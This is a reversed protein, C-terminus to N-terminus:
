QLLGKIHCLNSKGPKSLIVPFLEDEVILQRELISCHLSEPFPVVLKFLITLDNGSLCYFVTDIITNSTTDPFIALNDPSQYQRYIFLRLMVMQLQQKDCRLCVALADARSGPLFSFAEIRTRLDPLGTSGVELGSIDMEIDVFAAEMDYFEEVSM